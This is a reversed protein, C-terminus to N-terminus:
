HDFNTSFVLCYIGKSLKLVFALFLVFKFDEDFFNYLQLFLFTATQTTVASHYDRKQNLTSHEKWTGHDLQLCKQENGRGGCLLIAGDHLVMSSSSIKKTPLIPLQIIECDENTAGVHSGEIGAGGAVVFCSIKEIFSIM